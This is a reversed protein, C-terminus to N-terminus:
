GGRPRRGWALFGENKFGSKGYALPTGTFPEYPGGAAELVAQGAATDCEITTDFPSYLDSDGAAIVGCELASGCKRRERLPLGALIRRTAPQKRALPTVVVFVSCSIKRCILSERSDCDM